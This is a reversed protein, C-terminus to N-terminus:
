AKKQPKKAITKNLSYGVYMSGLIAVILLVILFAILWTYVWDNFTWEQFALNWKGYLLVIILWVLGVFFSFGGEDKSKRRKPKGEYEEQEKKPLKKYWHYYLILAIPITWTGVFILEWLILSLIFMIFYGVTWEGLLSPVLGIAQADAVFGLFVFIGVIGAGIIMGAILIVIEWHRRLFKIWPEENPNEANKMIGDQM